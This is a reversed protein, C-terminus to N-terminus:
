RRVVEVRWEVATVVEQLAPAREVLREAGVVDM